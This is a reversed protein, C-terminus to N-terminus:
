CSTTKTAAPRMISRTKCFSASPVRITTRCPFRLCPACCPTPGQATGTLVTHDASLTLTIADGHSTLTGGTIGVTADTFTVSRGGSDQVFGLAPNGGVHTDPAADFNDAGWNINLQGTSTAENNDGDTNPVVIDGPQSDHNGSPLGDEDVVVAQILSVNDIFAGFEDQDGEGQFALTDGPGTGTVFLTIQQWVGEPQGSSDITHVVNGNWLVGLGDDNGFSHGPRPTYWFTLEYDVGAQTGSIVQQITCDTNFPDPTGSPPQHAPNGTRDGDLEILALGDEAAIGGVGGTQVEFPIHNAGETWGPLSSYIDWDAGVLNPHGEEFSGNVILNSPPTISPGDDRFQILNGIGASATSVDGDGDTVTFTVQLASNTITQPSGAENPDLPNPHQIATYEALTLTGTGSDISFALAVPGAANAADTGVDGERGVILNGEHYLYISRGDTANLGSDAGDVVNLGFVSSSAANPGDTGFESGTTFLAAGSQAIQIPIGPLAAFLALLAPTTAVDNTGADQGATEDITLTVGSNIVLSASPGDDEFTIFSTGSSTDSDAATALTVTQSNTATDGDGDTVTDTLTVGLSAGNLEGDIIAFNLLVSEDFHDAGSLPHELPLYQEVQLVPDAPDGTLLIRLAVFDDSSDITDHGMVGDIETASVQHLYIARHDETSGAVPSGGTDTVHLNTLVGAQPSLVPDGNADTLTLSYVKNENELGDSGITKTVTFLAAISTGSGSVTTPTSTIGIALTSNATTIYSPATVVPPVNNDDISGDHNSDPGRDSQISEDLVLTDLTVFSDSNEGNTAQAVDVAIGDDQITVSIPADSIASATDGDGDTLSYNVFIGGNEGEGVVFMQALDDYALPTNGADNHHIALYQEVTVGGTSPDIVFQLALQDDANGIIGDVGAVLGNIQTNSVQVLYITDDGYVPTPNGTATFDTISLNTQVFADGIGTPTGDADRLVLTYAHSGEGDAGPSASFLDAITAADITASGFAVPNDVHATPLPFTPAPNGTDDGPPNSQVSDGPNSADNGVSEDLAVAAQAHEYQNDAVSPVDDDVNITVHGDISDGDFDTGTYTFQIHLNDEWATQGETVGDNTFPHALPACLIFCYSGDPQVILKFVDFTGDQGNDATGTLVGGGSSNNSWAIDIHHQTGLGNSDVYVANFESLAIQDGKDNTVIIKSPDFVLPNTATNEGDFHSPGDAGYRIDLQGFLHKGFGDDGPGGQIGGPQNEDDLAQSLTESGGEGDFYPQPYYPTTEFTVPTDDIVGIDFTNTPFVVPDPTTDHAVVATSLDINM